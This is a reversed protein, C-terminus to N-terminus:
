TFTTQHNPGLIQDVSNSPLNRELCLVSLGLGTTKNEEEDSWPKLLVIITRFFIEMMALTMAMALFM